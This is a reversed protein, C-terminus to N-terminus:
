RFNLANVDTKNNFTMGKNGSVVNLYIITGPAISLQIHIQAPKGSEGKIVQFPYEQGTLANLIKFQSSMIKPNKRTLLEWDLEFVDNNRMIGTHNEVEVRIADGSNPEAMKILESGALLFAGVAYVEADDFKPNVPKEGIQQVYGLKGTSQVSETLAQWAKLVSPLTKDKDLIGNNIGWALGYCFFATGSTEKSPFRQPDLLSAHWSGDPHQISLLKGAMERFLQLYKPRDPYDVPMNELVIALGGLVWGNGRSWFVKKGNAERKDFYRSDRFFLKEEKDYLYDTTKWWLKNAIDLYKIEGSSEYLASLTTPGMFLADCWAWERLVIKNVFELSETHPKAIISDGLNKLGEIMYPKKYINYLSAYMQGVCYDDAFYRRPGEKWKNLDGIRMMARYYKEDNAINGIAMIGTYLAGNTWDWSDHRPNELQWDAVKQMISFIDGSNQLIDKVPLDSKICTLYNTYHVYHDSINMWLVKPGSNLYNRVVFPRINSKLSNQTLAETKWKKGKDASTWKEIEFIDNIPRSLYVVSPNNHDLVIGGSYHPEREKVSDPTQPFWKGAKTLERDDWKKGNWRAYHYRHDSEGPLQTYVIVPRRKDDTAVDWVWARIKNLTADYVKNVQQINVPVENIGCIKTGNTQYINGNEYYLHYISNETENRPHGDTFAVDIRKKGDSTVKLYPRQNGDTNQPKIFIKAQAWTKGEDDSWSFNPQWDNGRWFIYIRNNEDSLQVANSYCIKDGFEKLERKNEWESIDETNKSSHMYMKGSHHTYFVLIKGNPRILISPNVHDDKQFKEELNKQEMKGTLNDYAAIVVSGDSTVWSIYTRDSKGKFSVARPDSFWCWAGDNAITKFDEAKAANQSWTVFVQSILFLILINKKM